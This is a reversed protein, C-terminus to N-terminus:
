KPSLSPEDNREVPTEDIKIGGSRVPRFSFPTAILINPTEGPSVVWSRGRHQLFSALGPNTIEDATTFPQILAMATIARNYCHGTFLKTLQFLVSHSLYGQFRTPTYELCGSPKTRVHKAHREIM